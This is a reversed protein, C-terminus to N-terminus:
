QTRRRGQSRYASRQALSLMFQSSARLVTVGEHSAPTHVTLAQRRQKSMYDAAKWFVAWTHWHALDCKSGDGNCNEQRHELKNCHLMAAVTQCSCSHQPLPGTQEQRFGGEESGAASQEGAGGQLGM